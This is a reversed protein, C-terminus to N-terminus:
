QEIEQWHPIEARPLGSDVEAYEEIPPEEVQRVERKNSQLKQLLQLLDALFLKVGENLESIIKGNREERIILLSHEAPMRPDFSVWDCWKRGTCALQWQIQYVYNDPIKREVLYEMHTMSTPCKVELLGDEGILRDPSAGAREIEPHVVFGVLDTEVNRDLEYEAVAQKEHSIGWEMALTVVHDASQGTIIEQAKELLYDKRKQTSEGKKDGRKLFSMVDPIRSATVRGRRAAYWPGEHQDFFLYNAPYKM